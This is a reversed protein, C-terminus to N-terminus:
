AKELLYATLALDTPQSLVGRTHLRQIAGRMDPFAYFAGRGPLCKVGPIDNLAKVIFAHRERFARVMPEICSQDGRLAAEAAVQVFSTANSTSQSQVNEMATIIPEPGGCYGLRWGPM